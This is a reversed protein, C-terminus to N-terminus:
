SADPPGILRCLKLSRPSVQVAPLGGTRQMGEVGLDFGAAVQGVVGGAAGGEEMTVRGAASVVRGVQQERDDAVLEPFSGVTAWRVVASVARPTSTGASTRVRSSRSWSCATEAAGSVM